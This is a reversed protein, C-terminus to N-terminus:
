EVLGAQPVKASIFGACRGICDADSLARTHGLDQLHLLESDPWARHLQEAAQVPVVRDEPDHLILGRHRLGSRLAELGMSDISQGIFGPVWDLFPQAHPPALGMGHAMGVLMPRLSSPGSLHVSATVQLGQHFALLAGASGASHGIVGHIDGLQQCLWLLARGMHVVSSVEGASDGHAPADFLTASFGSAVLPAIFGRLHSGRSNWGHALVVRPGRGFTWSVLTGGPYAHEERLGKNLFAREAETAPVRQPVSFSRILVKLAETSPQLQTM